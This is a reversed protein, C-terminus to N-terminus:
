APRPPFLRPISWAAVLPVALGVVVAWLPHPITLVSVIVGFLNIAAGAWATWVIRRSVLYAAATAGFAGAAWGALLGVIAATPMSRAFAALMAPDNLNTGPPPPFVMGLLAEGCSVLLVNAALAAVLALVIRLM